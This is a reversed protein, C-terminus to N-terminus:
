CTVGRGANAGAQPTTAISNPQGLRLCILAPGPTTLRTASSFVVGSSQAAVAM